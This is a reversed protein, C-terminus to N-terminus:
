EEPGDENESSEPTALDLDYNSVASDSSYEEDFGDPNNSKLQPMDDPTYKSAYKEIWHRSLMVPYLATRTPPPAIYPRTFNVRPHSPMQRRKCAKQLRLVDLRDVVKNFRTSRWRPRRVELVVAKNDEGDATRSPLGAQRLAANRRKTRIDSDVHQWDSLEDTMWDTELFPTPDENYKAKYEAVVDLRATKLQHQRGVRRNNSHSQLRRKGKTEPKHHTQYACVISRIVTKAFHQCDLETFKVNRYKLKCTEHTPNQSCFVLQAARKVVKLNPNRNVPIDLDLRWYPPLPHDPHPPHNPVITDTTAKRLPFYNKHYGTLQYVEDRVMHHLEERTHLQAPSLDEKRKQSLIYKDAQKNRCRDRRRKKRTQHATDEDDDDAAYDDDDPSGKKRKLDELENRLDRLEAQLELNPQIAPPAPQILSAVSQYAAFQALDMPQQGPCSETLAKCYEEYQKQLELLQLVNANPAPNYAPPAPPDNPGGTVSQSGLLGPVHAFNNLSTQLPM